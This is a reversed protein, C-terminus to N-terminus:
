SIWQLIGLPLSTKLLTDFVLHLGVTIAVALGLSFGAGRSEVGYILTFLFLVTAVPFGLVNLLALYSAMIAAVLLPKRL